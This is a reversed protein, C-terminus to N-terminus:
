SPAVGLAARVSTADIGRALLLKEPKSHGSIVEIQRPPIGLRDALLMAVAQNARGDEPPASVKIKLRAGLPGVIGQSRSGPVVKVAIRCAPVPRLSFDEEIM